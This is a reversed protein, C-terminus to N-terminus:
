DAFHGSADHGNPPPPSGAVASEDQHILPLWLTFRSGRDLESEV